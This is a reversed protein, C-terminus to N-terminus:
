LDGKPEVYRPVNQDVMSKYPDYNCRGDVTLLKHNWNVDMDPHVENVYKVQEQLAAQDFNSPTWVVQGSKKDHRGRQLIFVREVHLPVVRVQEEDIDYELLDPNEMVHQKDKNKVHEWVEQPKMRDGTGPKLYDAVETCTYVTMFHSYDTDLVQYYKLFQRRWRTLDFEPAEKYVNPNPMSMFYGISYDTPHSFKLQDGVLLEYKVDKTVKTGGPVWSQLYSVTDILTRDWRHGLCKM